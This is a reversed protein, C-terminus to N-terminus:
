PKCSVITQVKVITDVAYTIVWNVGYNTFTILAIGPLRGLIHNVWSSKLSPYNIPVHFLLGYIVPINLVSIFGGYILIFMKNDTKLYAYKLAALATLWGLIKYAWEYYKLFRTLTDTDGLWIIKMTEMGRSQAYGGTEQEHVDRRPGPQCLAALLARLTKIKLEPHIEIDGNMSRLRAFQPTFALPGHLTHAVRAPFFREEL